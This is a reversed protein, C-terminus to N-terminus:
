QGLLSGINVDSFDYWKADEKKQQEELLQRYPAETVTVGNSYYHVGGSETSESYAIPRINYEQSQLEITGFGTDFASGAYSFSGDSKLEMFARYVIDYGYVAGDQYSLIEYGYDNHNVDVKVIMEITGNADLDVMAFQPFTVALGDFGSSLQGLYMSRNDSVSFFESDNSLVLKYADLVDQNQGSDPVSVASAASDNATISSVPVFGRFYGGTSSEIYAWDGMQALLTVASNDPLEALVEQSYLPDDTVSVAGLTWANQATFNLADVSASKPLSDADIYGFRYHGSDISYQILIWSKEEGFVQIWGNTSVAAKGSGGRLSTKDPASYVTYKKGGAFKINQAKLEASSPIPPANTLKARAETLTKPIVSLSVYRLDRQVTGYATGVITPSEIDQFYSISGDALVMSYNPVYSQIRTLMWGEKQLFFMISTEAYENESDSQYVFLVPTNYTRDTQYDTLSYLIIIGVHNKGQPVAGSTHMWHKWVGDKQKFGYLVNEDKATRILVFWCNDTGYDALFTQGTITCGNFASSLFYEQIGSPLESDARSFVPPLLLCISFFCFIMVFRKM